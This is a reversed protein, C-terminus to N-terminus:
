IDFFTLMVALYLAGLVTSMIFGAAIGAATRPGMKYLAFLGAIPSAAWALITWYWFITLVPRAYEWVGEFENALDKFPSYDEFIM